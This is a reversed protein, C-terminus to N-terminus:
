RAKERMTMFEEAALPYIIMTTDFHALTAAAKIPIVMGQIIEAAHEGVMDCGLVLDPENEVVLKITIRDGRASYQVHICAERERERRGKELM